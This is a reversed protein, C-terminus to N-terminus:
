NIKIIARYIFCTFASMPLPTIFTSLATFIYDFSRSLSSGPHSFPNRIAPSATVRRIKSFFRGNLFIRCPLFLRIALFRARETIAAALMRAVSLGRTM